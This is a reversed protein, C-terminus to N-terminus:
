EGGQEAHGRNPICCCIMEAKIGKVSDNQECKFGEYQTNKWYEHLFIVPEM